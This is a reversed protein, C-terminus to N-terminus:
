YLYIIKLLKMYNKQDVTFSITGNPKNFNCLTFDILRVLEIVENMSSTFLGPLGNCADNWGPKESEMELGTQHADLCSFKILILNIIKTALNVRIVKGFQNTKWLTETGKLGMAENDKKFKKNDVAGYQRIKGPEVLCYKESRPNIYALSHYYGYSYDDFLLNSIKDPFVSKYNELLDLNYVWHDIWYGEKYIAEVEQHCNGLLEAFFVDIDDDNNDKLLTYIEGPTAGNELM